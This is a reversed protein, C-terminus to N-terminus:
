SEDEMQAPHTMRKLAEIQKVFTEHVLAQKHGRANATDLQQELREQESKLWEVEESLKLNRHSLADNSQKLLNTEKEHLRSLRHLEQIEDERAKKKNTLRKNEAEWGAVERQYRRGNEEIRNVYMQEMRHLKKVSIKVNM